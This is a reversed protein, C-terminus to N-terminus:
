RRKNQVPRGGGRGAGPPPARGGIPEGDLRLAGRTPALLGSVLNIVTTKGAGNPGILGHVEGPAVAFTAGDVARVGGFAREVRELSLLASV